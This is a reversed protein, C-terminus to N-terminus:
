LLKCAPLGNILEGSHILCSSTAFSTGAVLNSQFKTPDFPLDNTTPITAPTISLTGAAQAISLDYVFQVQQNTTPNFAFNQTLQAPTPNSQPIPNGTITAPGSVGSQSCNTNLYLTSSALFGGTDVLDIKVQLPGALLQGSIDIPAVGGTSVFTDPNQGTLQGNGAPGQYGSTFCNQSPGSPTNDATGGRCVNVPGSVATGSTVSVQVNNDVLVNGTGDTSSTLTATIPSAACTLNLTASNFPVAQPGTGTGTASARVNVPGFLRISNQAVIAPVVFASSVAIACYRLISGKRM